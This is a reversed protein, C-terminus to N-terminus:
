ASAARPATGRPGPGCSRRTCSRPRSRAPPAPRPPRRRAHDDGGTPVLFGPSGTVKRSFNRPDLPGGWVAEYVRRLESVTFESPCFAAGLPTYELKSRAREVGDALVRGHDFAPPGGAALLPAVPHWAAEAADTGGLPVPLDPALALHAVTVVRQRPDRDPAGYSALQELHLGSTRPTWRRRRRSSAGPLM